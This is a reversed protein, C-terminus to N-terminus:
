GGNFPGLGGIRHQDDPVAIVMPRVVTRAGARSLIIEHDSLQDDNRTGYVNAWLGRGRGSRM